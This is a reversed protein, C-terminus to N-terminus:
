EGDLPFMAQAQTLRLSSAHQEAQEREAQRRREERAELERRTAQDQLEIRRGDAIRGLQQQLYREMHDRTEDDRPGCAELQTLAPLLQEKVVAFENQLNAISPSVGIHECQQNYIELLKPPIEVILNLKQAKKFLRQRKTPARLFSCLMWILTAIQMPFSILFVWPYSSSLSNAVLMPLINGWLAILAYNYDTKRRGTSFQGNQDLLRKIKQPAIPSALYQKEVASM